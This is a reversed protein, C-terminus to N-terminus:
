PAKAPNFGTALTLGLLWQIFLNITAQLPIGKTNVKLWGNHGEAKPRLGSHSSEPWYWAMGNCVIM